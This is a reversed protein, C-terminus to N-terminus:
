LLVVIVVAHLALRAVVGHLGLATDYGRGLGAGLGGTMLGSLAVALHDRGLVFVAREEGVGEMEVTDLTVARLAPRRLAAFTVSPLSTRASGITGVGSM